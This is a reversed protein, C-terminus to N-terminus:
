VTANNMESARVFVIKYNSQEEGALEQEELITTKPSEHKEYRIANEGNKLKKLYFQSHEQLSHISYSYIESNIILDRNFHYYDIVWAPIPECIFEHRARCILMHKVVGLHEILEDFGSLSYPLSRESCGLIISLTGNKSINVITKFRSFIPFDSITIQKNNKNPVHSRALLNEYLESTRVHIRIDHIFPPQRKLKKLLEEFDPHVKTLSTDKVTLNEVHIGRLKYFTPKSDIVREVISGLSHVYQRFNTQEIHRFDLVCFLDGRIVNIDYCTKLFERIKKTPKWGRIDNSYM